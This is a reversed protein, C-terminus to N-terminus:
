WVRPKGASCSLIDLACPGTASVFSRTLVRWFPSSNRGSAGRFAVPKKKSAFSQLDHAEFFWAFHFKGIVYPTSPYRDRYWNHSVGEHKASVRLFRTVGPGTQEPLPTDEANEYSEQSEGHKNWKRERVAAAAERYGLVELSFGTPSKRLLTRFERKTAGTRSWDRLVTGYRQRPGGTRTRETKLMGRRGRTSWNWAEERAAREVIAADQSGAEEPEPEAVAFRLIATNADAGRVLLCVAIVAALPAVARAPRRPRM